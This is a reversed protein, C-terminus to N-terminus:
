RRGGRKKQAPKKAKRLAKLTVKGKRVFDAENVSDSGSDEEEEAGSSEEEEQSSEAEEGEEEEGEKEEEESQTSASSSASSDMVLVSSDASDSSAGRLAAAAAASGGGGVAAGGGAAGSKLWAHMLLAGAGGGAGGSRGKKARGAAARPARKRSQAAAAGGGAGGAAYEGEEGEAALAEAGEEGPAQAPKVLRLEGDASRKEIWTRMAPMSLSWGPGERQGLRAQLFDRWHDQLNDASRKSHVVMPREARLDARVVRWEINTRKGGVMPGLGRVAEDGPAAGQRLLWSYVGRVVAVEEETSYKARAANLPLGEVVGGARVVARVYSDDDGAAGELVARVEAAGKGTAEVIREVDREIRYERGTPAERGLQTIGLEEHVGHPKVVPLTIQAYLQRTPVHWVHHERLTLTESLRLGSQAELAV